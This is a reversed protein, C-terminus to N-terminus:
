VDTRANKLKLMMEELVRAYKEIGEMVDQMVQRMTNCLNTWNENTKNAWDMVGRWFTDIENGPAQCSLIVKQLLAEVQEIEQEIEQKLYKMETVKIKVDSAM